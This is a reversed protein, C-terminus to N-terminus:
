IVIYFSAENGKMNYYLVDVFTNSLIIGRGCYYDMNELARNSINISFGEGEDTVTVGLIKKGSTEYLGYKLNIKKRCEKEASSLFQEYTNDRIMKHKTEMDIGLNGHEYANMLMEYLAVKLKAITDEDLGKLQFAEDMSNLFKSVEHLSTGIEATHEWVIHPAFRKIYFITADDMLQPVRITFVSEFEKYFITNKFDEEITNAYLTNNKDFSEVLGDSYILFSDADALSITHCNLSQSYKTLPPNNSHLEVITGDTKKILIPPMGCHYYRLQDKEIDILFFTGSLIEEELLIKKIYVLFSEVTSSLNFDNLEIAKDVAHNLFAVSMISTVAASLGKGMTDLIFGFIIGDQVHRYSYTDGCLIEQPKYFSSFFYDVTKGSIKKKALDNKLLNIEKRYALQQQSIHYMERYKLLEIEIEKEKLLKQKLIVKTSAEYVTAILTNKSFPKQIFRSIGLDLLEKLEKLDDSSTVVVIPIEPDIKRIQTIFEIGNMDPMHIDTIIIDFSNKLFSALGAVGNYTIEVSKFIPELQSQILRSTAQDYDVVLVSLDKLYTITQQTM